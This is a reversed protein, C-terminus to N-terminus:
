DMVNKWGEFPDFEEHILRLYTGKPIVLDKHEPHDGSTHHIITEEEIEVIQGRDNIALSSMEEPLEYITANEIVHAHGTAEGEAVIGDKRSKTKGSQYADFISKAKDYTEEDRFNEKQISNINLLIVDGHRIPIQKTNM